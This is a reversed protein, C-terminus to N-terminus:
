KTNENNSNLATIQLAKIELHVYLTRAQSGVGSVTQYNGCKESWRGSALPNPEAGPVHRAMYFM